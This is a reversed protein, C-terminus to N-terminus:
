EAAIERCQTDLWDYYRAEMLRLWNGKINERFVCSRGGRFGDRGRREAVFLAHARPGDGTLPFM